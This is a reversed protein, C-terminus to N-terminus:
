AASLTKNMASRIVHLVHEYGMNHGIILDAPKLGFIGFIEKLDLRRLGRVGGDDKFRGAYIRFSTADQNEPRAAFTGTDWRGETIVSYFEGEEDRYLLGDNDGATRFAFGQFGRQEANHQAAKLVNCEDAIEATKRVTCTWM